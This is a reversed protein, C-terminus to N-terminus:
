EGLGRGQAHDFAAESAVANVRSQLAQREQNIRDSSIIEWSDYSLLGSAYRIDAEDNRQRAADLLAAQVGAQAAAKAFDSWSSEIDAVAAFRVSRLDQRSRELDSRAGSINFYAATPGGGFLPLSLTGQASWSTQSRPFEARGTMSRNFSASLTPWLSSRASQLGAQASAIAALGVQVDPRRSVMAEEDAPLLPPESPTLTGTAVFARFEDYGMHRDLTRQATRLDRQAQDVDAQAQSLQAQARMMSGKSERGSAYRLTVLEAGHSRMEHIRRSVEASDQAFLLQLFARRLSLRLDSSVRRLTATARAYGASSARIEALRAANFINMSASGGASWHQTTPGASNSDSFSNSLSLQPLLGNFSGLYDARGSELSLRASSLDPNQRLATAVCDEWTIADAAKAAGPAALLLACLLIARM